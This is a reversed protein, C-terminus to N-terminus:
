PKKAKIGVQLLLDGLENLEKALERNHEMLIRHMAALRNKQNGAKMLEIDILEQEYELQPNKTLFERRKDLAEALRPNHLPKVKNTM